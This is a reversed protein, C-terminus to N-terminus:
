PRRRDKLAEVRKKADRMIQEMRTPFKRAAEEAEAWIKMEAETDERFERAVRDAYSERKPPEKPTVGITARVQEQEYKLKLQETEAKIRENEARIKEVESVVPPEDRERRAKELIAIEDESKMLDARQKNTKEATWIGANALDTRLDIHEKMERVLESKSRIAATVEIDTKASSRAAIRRRANGVLDSLTGEGVRDVELPEDKMAVGVSLPIVGLVPANKDGREISVHNKRKLLIDVIWISVGVVLLVLWWDM